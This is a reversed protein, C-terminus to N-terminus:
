MSIKHKKETPCRIIISYSNLSSSSHEREESVYLPSLGTCFGCCLGVFFRGIVLMEYSGAVECSGMLVVGVSSFSQVILLGRKRGFRDAVYGASLGGLMGGVLTAAVVM